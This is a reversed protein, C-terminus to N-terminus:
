FERNNIVFTEYFMSNYERYEWYIEETSVILLWSKLYRAYQM